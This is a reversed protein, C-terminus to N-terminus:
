RRTHYVTMQFLQFSGSFASGLSTAGLQGVLGGQMALAGTCTAIGSTDGTASTVCGRTAHSLSAGIMSAHQMSIEHLTRLFYDGQLFVKFFVGFSSITQLYAGFQFNQRKIGGRHCTM